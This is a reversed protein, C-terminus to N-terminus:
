LLSKVLLVASVVMLVAILAVGFKILFNVGFLLVMLVLLGISILSILLNGYKSKTPTSFNFNYKM